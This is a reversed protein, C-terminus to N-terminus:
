DYKQVPCFGYKKIDKDNYKQSEYILHHYDVFLPRIVTIGDGENTVSAVLRTGGTVGFQWIDLEGLDYKPYREEFLKKFIEKKPLAIPHCHKNGGNCIEYWKEQIEPIIKKVVIYIHKAFDQESKLYNSFGKCQGSKLWDRNTYFDVRVGLSNAKKTNIVNKGKPNPSSINPHM